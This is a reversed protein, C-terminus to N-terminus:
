RVVDLEGPTLAVRDAEGLAGGDEAGVVLEALDGGVVAGGDGHTPDVAADGEVHLDLGLLFSFDESNRFCLIDAKKGNTTFSISEEEKEHPLFVGRM